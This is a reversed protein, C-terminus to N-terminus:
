QPSTVNATVHPGTVHVVFVSVAQPGSMMGPGPCLSASAEGSVFKVTLASNDTYDTSTFTEGPVLVKEQV